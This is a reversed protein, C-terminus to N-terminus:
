SQQVLEEEENHILKLNDPLSDIFTTPFWLITDGRLTSKLINSTIPIIM